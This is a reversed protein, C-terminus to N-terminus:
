LVEWMCTDGQPRFAEFFQTADPDPQGFETQRDALSVIIIDGELAFDAIYPLALASCLHLMDESAQEYSIAGAERSIQPAVFRFRLWTEEGMDDILVEQLEVPQGSPVEIASAAGASLLFTFLVAKM